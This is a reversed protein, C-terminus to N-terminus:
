TTYLIQLETMNKISKKNKSYSNLFFINSILNLNYKLFYLIQTNLICYGIWVGIATIVYSYIFKLCLNILILYLITFFYVRLCM